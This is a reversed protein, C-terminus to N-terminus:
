LRSLGHVRRFQFMQHLLMERRGGLLRGSRGATYFAGHYQVFIWAKIPPLHGFFARQVLARHARMMFAKNFIKVLASAPGDRNLRSSFVKLSLRYGM